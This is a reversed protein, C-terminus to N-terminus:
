ARTCIEALGDWLPSEESAIAPEEELWVRLTQEYSDFKESSNSLWNLYEWRLELQLQQPRCGYRSM